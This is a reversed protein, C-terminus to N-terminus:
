ISILSIQEFETIKGICKSRKGFKVEFIKGKEEYASIWGFKTNISIQKIM